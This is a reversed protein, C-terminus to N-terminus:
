NLHIIVQCVFRTIIFMNKFLKNNNNQKCSIKWRIKQSHQTKNTELKPFADQNIVTKKEKKEKKEHFSATLICETLFFANRTRM